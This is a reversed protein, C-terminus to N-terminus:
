IKIMSNRIIIYESVHEKNNVFALIYFLIGSLDENKM